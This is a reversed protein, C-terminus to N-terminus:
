LQARFALYDDANTLTPWDEGAAIMSEIEDIRNGPAPHSSLFEPQRPGGELKSFFDVFGQPAYGAAVLYGFGVRDSETEASRSHSLLAGTGAVQSVLQAVLGPDEGLAMQVAAELGVTAVLREAVHRQTVHAVEHALVAMVEAESEAALLLGTYMYIHGGPIAFANVTQDDEVVYFRFTIAPDRDAAVSVIQQGLGSIYEQVTADPHMTLEADLQTALEAGLANEQEVPLLTDAAYEQVAGAFSGGCAGLAFAFVIPIALRM